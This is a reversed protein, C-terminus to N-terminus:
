VEDLAALSHGPNVFAYGRVRGPFRRMADHMWQNCERFDEPAAPRRPSLISCWAEDIGLKDCADIFRRDAEQWDARSHHSLHDPVDIVRVHPLDGVQGSQAVWPCAGGLFTRRSIDM